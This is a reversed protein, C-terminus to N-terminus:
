VNDNKNELQQVMTQLTGCLDGSEITMGCSELNTKFKRFIDLFSFLIDTSQVSARNPTSVKEILDSRKIHVGNKQYHINTFDLDFFMQLQKVIREFTFTDVKTKSHYLCDIFDGRLQWYYKVRKCHNSDCGNEEDVLHLVCRTCKELHHVYMILCSLTCNDQSACPPLDKADPCASVHTHENM